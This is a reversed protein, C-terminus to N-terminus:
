SMFTSVKVIYQNAFTICNFQLQSMFTFFFISAFFKFPFNIILHDFPFFHKDIKFIIQIQIM